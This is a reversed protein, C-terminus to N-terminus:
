DRQCINKKEGKRAKRLDLTCMLSTFVINQLYWIVCVAIQIIIKKRSQLKSKLYAFQIIVALFIDEM